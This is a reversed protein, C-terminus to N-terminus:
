DHGKPPKPPPVLVSYLLNLRPWVDRFEDDSLHSTFRRLVEDSAGLDAGLRTCTEHFLDCAYANEPDLEEIQIRVPCQGCEFLEPEAEIWEEDDVILCCPHDNRHDM